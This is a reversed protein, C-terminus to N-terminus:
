NPENDILTFLEVFGVVLSYEGREKSWVLTDNVKVATLYRGKM